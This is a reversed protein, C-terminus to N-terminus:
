INECKFNKLTYGSNIEKETLAPFMTNLIECSTNTYMTGNMRMTMIGQTDNYLLEFSFIIGTINENVSEINDYQKELLNDFSLVGFYALVFMIAIVVLIAWGYTMLFEMAQQSKKNKM